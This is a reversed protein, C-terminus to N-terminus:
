GEVLRVVLLYACAGLAAGVIAALRMRAVSQRGYRANLRAVWRIRNISRVLQPIARAMVAGIALAVVFLVPLHWWHVRTLRAGAAVGAMFVVTAAIAYVEVAIRVCPDNRHVADHGRLRIGLMAGAVGVAIGALMGALAHGLVTTASQGVGYKGAGLWSAIGFSAAAATPAASALMGGGIAASIAAVFGPGPASARLGQGIETLLSERMSRRARSVRQRVADPRLGLIRGAVASDENERYYVLLTERSSEPLAEIAAHVASWEQHEVVREEANAQPDVLTVLAHDNEAIGARPQRRQARLHDRALNRVVQRLWPVFRDADRIQGRDRWGRLYAEQAIDESTAIDRVIALALATVGRQTALVVADYAHTDGQLARVIQTHLADAIADSSLSVPLDHESQSLALTSASSSIKGPALTEPRYDAVAAAMIVADYTGAGLRRALRAHLDAASSFQELDTVSADPTAAGTGHLLTVTHGLAVLAAALGAGTAGTSVNSLYRVADIPERTAGATLLLNM